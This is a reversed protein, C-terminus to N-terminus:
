DERGDVKEESEFEKQFSDLLAVWHDAVPIQIHKVVVAELAPKRNSESDHKENPSVDHDQDESQEWFLHEDLNPSVQEGGWGDDWVQELEVGVVIVSQVQLVDDVLDCHEQCAVM